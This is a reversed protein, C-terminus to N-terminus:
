RLLIKIKERISEVNIRKNEDYELIKDLLPNVYPQVIEANLTIKNNFNLFMTNNAATIYNKLFHFQEIYTNVENILKDPLNHIILVNNEFSINELFLIIDNVIAQNVSSLLMKQLKEHDVSDSSNNLEVALIIIMFVISTLGSAVIITGDSKSPDNATGGVKKKTATKRKNKRTFQKRKLKKNSRYKKM